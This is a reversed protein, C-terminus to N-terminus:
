LDEKGASLFKDRMALVEGDAQEYPSIFRPNKGFFFEYADRDVVVQTAPNYIVKLVDNFLPEVDLWDEAKMAISCFYRLREVPCDIPWEKMSENYDKIVPEKSAPYHTAPDHTHLEKLTESSQNHFQTAPYAVMIEGDKDVIAYLKTPTM